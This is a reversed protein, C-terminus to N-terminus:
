VLYMHKLYLIALFQTVCSYIRYSFNAVKQATYSWSTAFPYIRQCLLLFAGYRSYFTGPSLRRSEFRRGCTWCPDCVGGLNPLMARVALSPRLLSAGDQLYSRQLADFLCFIVDRLTM